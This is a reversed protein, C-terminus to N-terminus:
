LFRGYPPRKEQYEILEKLKNLNQKLVSRRKEFFVEEDEEDIYGCRCYFRIWDEVNDDLDYYLKKCFDLMSVPSTEQYGDINNGHEVIIHCSVYSVLCLVRGPEMFGKVWFPLGTELGHITQDLWEYPIDDLYSLGYLKTGPLQFDTWGAEPKSLM